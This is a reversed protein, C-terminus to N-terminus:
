PVTGTLFLLIGFSAGPSVEFGRVVIPEASIDGPNWVYSTFFKFGNYLISPYAKFVLFGFILLIYAVPILSGISVALEDAKM